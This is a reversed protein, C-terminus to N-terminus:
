KGGFTQSLENIYVEKMKETFVMKAYAEEGEQTENLDIYKHKGEIM